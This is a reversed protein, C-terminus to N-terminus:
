SPTDAGAPPTIAVVEGPRITAVLSYVDGPRSAGRAKKSTGTPALTREFEISRPLVEDASFVLRAARGEGKGGDETRFLLSVVCEQGAWGSILAPDEAQGGPLLQRGILDLPWPMGLVDEDPPEATWAGGDLRQWVEDGLRRTEFVTWGDEDPITTVRDWTTPDQVRDSVLLDLFLEDAQGRYTNMALTYAYPTDTELAVKAAEIRSLDCVPALGDAAPPTVTGATHPAAAETSGPELTTADDSAAAPEAAGAEGLPRMEFTGPM